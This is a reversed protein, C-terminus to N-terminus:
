RSSHAEMVGLQRLRSKRNSQVDYQVICDPTIWRETRDPLQVLFKKDSLALVEVFYEGEPFKARITDGLRAKQSEYKMAQEHVGDWSGVVEGERLAVIVGFQMHASWDMVCHDATERCWKDFSYSEFVQANEEVPPYRDENATISDFYLDRGIVPINDLDADLLPGDYEPYITMHCLYPDWRDKAGAERFDVNAVELQPCHMKLILAKPEKGLWAVGYPVAILEELTGLGELVELVDPTCTSSTLVTIHLDSLPVTPTPLGSEECIAKLVDYSDKSLNAKVYISASGDPLDSTDIEIM